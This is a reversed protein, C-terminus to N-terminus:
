RGLYAQLRELAQGLVGDVAPALKDAGGRIYGGVVYTQTIETGGEVPKLVWSLRGTAGESLIPGLGSDLTARQYPMSMLVRGHIVTGAVATTGGNGVATGAPITECFCAGAELSLSLNEAKGSFSHAPDWWAGVRGIADWVKDPQAKVVRVARVEFGNPASSVVEARADAAGLLLPGIVVLALRM